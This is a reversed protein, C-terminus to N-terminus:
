SLKANILILTVLIEIYFVLFDISVQNVLSSQKAEKGLKRRGRERRKKRGEKKLKNLKSSVEYYTFPLKFHPVRNMLTFLAIILMERETRSKLSLSSIIITALNQASVVLRLITHAVCDNMINVNVTCSCLM